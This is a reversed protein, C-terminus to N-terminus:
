VAEFAQTERIKFVIRFLCLRDDFKYKVPESLDIYNPLTIDLADKEDIRVCFRDDNFSISDPLKDTRVSCTLLFSTPRYHLDYEVRENDTTTDQSVKTDSDNDVFTIKNNVLENSRDAMHDITLIEYGAQDLELKHGVFQKAVKIADSANYKEEISVMVVTVVYNRIIESAIVKRIAFKENLQVDIVYNRDGNKDSEKQWYIQSLKLPIKLNEIRPSPNCIEQILTDEDVDVDPAPVDNTAQFNIFLIRNSRKETTKLCFLPNLDGNPNM